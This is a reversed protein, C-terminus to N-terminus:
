TSCPRPSLFTAGAAIKRRASVAERAFDAAASQHARRHRFGTPRGLPIGNYDRGENLGRLVEILGLSDVDWIGAANPYDAQLPPTGTRCM